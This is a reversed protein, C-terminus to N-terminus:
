IKEETKQGLEEPHSTHLRLQSPSSPTGDKKDPSLKRDTEVWGGAWGVSLETMACNQIQTYKRFEWGLSTFKDEAAWQVVAGTDTWPGEVLGAQKASRREGNSM